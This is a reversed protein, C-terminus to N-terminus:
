ENSELIRPVVFYNGEREPAQALIPEPDTSVVVDERFVNVNKVPPEQIDAAIDQVREAYSLVQDVQEVLAGIEDEHITIKSINAIYIIEERTVKTM